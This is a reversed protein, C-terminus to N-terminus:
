ADVPESGCRFEFKEYSEFGMSVIECAESKHDLSLKLRFNEYVYTRERCAADDSISKFTDHKNLFDLAFEAERFDMMNDANITISGGYYTIPKWYVGSTVFFDRNSNVLEVALELHKRCEEGQEVRLNYQQLAQTNEKAIIEDVSLPEKEM